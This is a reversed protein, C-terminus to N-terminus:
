ENHGWGDRQGGVCAARETMDTLWVHIEAFLPLIERRVIAQWRARELAYEVSVKFEREVILGAFDLAQRQTEFIFNAYVLKPKVQNKNRSKPERPM